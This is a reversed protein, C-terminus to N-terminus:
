FKFYHMGQVLIKKLKQARIYEYSNKNKKSYKHAPLFARNLNLESFRTNMKIAKPNGLVFIVKGSEVTLNPLIKKFAVIGCTENGHTGAMIISTKGPVKGKIIKIVPTKYKINNM